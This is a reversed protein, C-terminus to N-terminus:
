RKFIRILGDKGLRIESDDIEVVVWIESGIQVKTGIEIKKTTTNTNMKGKIYVLIPGFESFHVSFVVM